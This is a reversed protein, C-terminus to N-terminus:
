RPYLVEVVAAARLVPNDNMRELTVRCLARRCHLVRGSVIETLTVEGPIESLALGMEDADASSVLATGAWGSSVVFSIERAEGFGSAPEVSFSAKAAGGQFRFTRATGGRGLTVTGAGPDVTAAVGLAALLGNGAVRPGYLAPIGEERDGETGLAFLYAHDPRPAAEHLLRVTDEMLMTGGITKGGAAAAFHGELPALSERDAALAADDAKRAEAPDARSPGPPEAPLSACGLPLAAALLVLLRLCGM